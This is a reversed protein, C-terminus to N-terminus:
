KHGARYSIESNNVSPKGNVLSPVFSLNAKGFKLTCLLSMQGVNWHTDFEKKRHDTFGTVTMAPIFLWNASFNKRELRLSLPLCMLYERRSSNQLYYDFSSSLSPDNVNRYMKVSANGIFGFTFVVPNFNYVFQEIIGISVGSTDVRSRDQTIERAGTEYKINRDLTDRYRNVDTKDSLSYEQYKTYSASATLKLFLCNLKLRLFSIGASGREVEYCFNYVSPAIVSHPVRFSDPGTYYTNINDISRNITDRIKSGSFELLLMRNDTSTRGFPFFSAAISLAADTSGKYEKDMDGQFMRGEYAISDQRQLSTYSMKDLHLETSVGGTIGSRNEIFVAGRLGYRNRSIMGTDSSIQPSGFYFGTNINKFNRALAGYLGAVPSYKFDSRYVHNDDQEQVYTPDRFGVVLNTFSHLSDATDTVFKQLGPYHISASALHEGTLLMLPKLTVPYIDLSTEQAISYISFCLLIFLLKSLLFRRM